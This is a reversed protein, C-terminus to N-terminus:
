FFASDPDIGYARIKRYITSRSLGINRAAEVKNGHADHLAQMIAECELQDITSLSRVKSRSRVEVPLHASTIEGIRSAISSRVVTELQRINGPWAASGLKNIADAAFHVSRGRPHRAVIDRVILPIDDRRAELDPLALTIAELKDILRRQGSSLGEVNGNATCLVWPRPAGSSLNLLSGFERVQHDTLTELHRLVVIMASGTDTPVQETVPRTEDLDGCDILKTSPADLEPGVMERAVSWKGVGSTGTIVVSIRDTAYRAAAARVSRWKPNDGPLDIRRDPTAPQSRTRTITPQRPSAVDVLAGILRDGDFIPACSLTMEDGDKTEFTRTAVDSASVVESVVDWLTGRDVLHDLLRTVRAGAVLLDKGVAAVARHDRKATLYADLLRREDLTSSQLLRNEIDAATSVMLPTLLANAAEAKCSLTIIGELRRTTPSRIPAGVCAFPLLAEAFHEPGVILQARGLEAVTGIGNTGVRDEPAGFGVDSCIRDLHTLISPDAVWRKVINADRDALLVGAHLGALSEALARLVPEAAEFLRGTAVLDERYPLSAVDPKAGFAASRRWSALIDPRVARSLQESVAGTEFLETRARHVQKTNFSAAAMPGRGQQVIALAVGPRWGM